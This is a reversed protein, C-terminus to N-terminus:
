GVNEACETEEKRPLLKRKVETADFKEKIQVRAVFRKDCPTCHMDASLARNYGRWKGDTALPAGCQPCVFRLYEPKVLPDDRDTVYRNKFTIRRYFAADAPSLMKEFSDADYIKQLVRGTLISDDLARHHAVDKENVSIQECAASLGVQQTNPLEMRAQFYAQLDVYAHM